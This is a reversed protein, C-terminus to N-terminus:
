GFMRGAMAFQDHRLSALYEYHTAMVQVGHTGELAAPNWWAGEIGEAVSAYAGGMASARAGAPVKLFAFGAPDASASPAAGLTAALALVLWLPFRREAPRIMPLGPGM